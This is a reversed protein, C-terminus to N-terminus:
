PRQGNGIEPHQQRVDAAPMDAAYLPWIGLGHRKWSEQVERKQLCRNPRALLEPNFIYDRYSQYAIYNLRANENYNYYPACSLPVTCGNNTVYRTYPDQRIEKLTLCAHPDVYEASITFISFLISYLNKM